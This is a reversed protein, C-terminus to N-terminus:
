LEFRVVGAIFSGEVSFEVIHPGVDVDAPLELGVVGATFIEVELLLWLRLGVGEM